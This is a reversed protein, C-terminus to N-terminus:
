SLDLVVIGLKEKQPPYIERLRQLAEDPKLGPLAHQINECKLMQDLSAYRRVERVRREAQDSNSVLRILDGRRIKKIHDYAVRIELKKQGSKIMALYRNQIRLNRILANKDLPCGWQQTVVEQRYAGPLLGELKWPSEQLAAVEAATPAHHLYVKRGCGYLLTPLDVILARFAAIDSAAVPM